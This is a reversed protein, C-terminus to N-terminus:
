KTTSAEAWVQASSAPAAQERKRGLLDTLAGVDPSHANFDETRYDILHDIGLARLEGHM